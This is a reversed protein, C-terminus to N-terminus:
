LAPLSWHGVSSFYPPRRGKGLSLNGAMLGIGHGLEIGVDIVPRGIAKEVNPNGVAHLNRETEESSDIFTGGESNAIMRLEQTFLSVDQENALCIQGILFPRKGPACGSIAAALCLLILVIEDCAM